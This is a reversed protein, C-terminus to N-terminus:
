ESLRLPESLKEHESTPILLAILVLLPSFFDNGLGLNASISLTM